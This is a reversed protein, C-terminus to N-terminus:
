AKSNKRREQLVCLKLASRQLADKMLDALYEQRCQPCLMEAATSVLYAPEDTTSELPQKCRACQGNAQLSSM